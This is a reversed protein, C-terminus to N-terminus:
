RADKSDPDPTYFGRAKHIRDRYEGRMKLVEDDPLQGTYAQQCALMIGLPLIPDVVALVRSACAASTSNTSPYVSLIADPMRIGLEKAKMALTISFNGGASDGVFIIREATTGVILM